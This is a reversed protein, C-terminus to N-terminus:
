QVNITSTWPLHHLYPSVRPLNGHNKFLLCKPPTFDLLLWWKPDPSNSYTAWVSQTNGDEAILYGRIFLTSNITWFDWVVKQSPALVKYIMPNWSGKGWSIMKRHRGDVTPKMKLFFCWLVLTQKVPTSALFVQNAYLGSISRKRNPGPRNEPANATLKLFHLYIPM